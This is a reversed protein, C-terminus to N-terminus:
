LAVAPTKIFYQCALRHTNQILFRQKQSMMYIVCTVTYKIYFELGTKKIKCYTYFTSSLRSLHTHYVHHFFLQVASNIHWAHNIIHLMLSNLYKNEYVFLHLNSNADVTQVRLCLECFEVTVYLYVRSRNTVAQCKPKSCHLVATKLTKTLRTTIKGPFMTCLHAAFIDLCSQPKTKPQWIVRDLFSDLDKRLGPNGSLMVAHSLSKLQLTEIYTRRKRIYHNSTTNVHNHAQCNCM